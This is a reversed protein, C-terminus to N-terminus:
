SATSYISNPLPSSTLGAAGFVTQLDRKSEMSKICVSKLGYERREYLNMRYANEFVAVVRKNISSGTHDPMSHLPSESQCEVRCAVISGHLICNICGLVLDTSFGVYVNPLRSEVVRASALACRNQTWFGATLTKDREHM